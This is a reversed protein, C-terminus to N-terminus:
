YFAGLKLVSEVRLFNRDKAFFAGNLYLWGDIRRRRRRRWGGKSRLLLRSQSKQHHRHNHAVVRGIHSAFRRRWRLRRFSTSAALARRTSGFDAIATFVATLLAPLQDCHPRARSQDRSNSLVFPLWWRLTFISTNCWCGAKAQCRNALCCAAIAILNFNQTQRSSSLHALYIQIHPCQFLYFVPFNHSLMSTHSHQTSVISVFRESTQLSVRVHM